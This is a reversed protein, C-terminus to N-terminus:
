IRPTIDPDHEHQHSPAESTSALLNFRNSTPPINAQPPASTNSPKQRSKRTKARIWPNDSKQAHRENDRATGYKNLRAPCRRADAPHNHDINSNGLCNRCRTDHPCHGEATTDMTDGMERALNCRPCNTPDAYPHDKEDHLGSCIRCRQDEKCLHSPHDLKWCNRCQTVPPRDQFARVSCHKGFAALSKHKLILRAATEDTTTFVLSSRHTNLLEEETRLWRPKSVLTDQLRTYQPNCALPEAHITDASNSVRGNAISLSSTNVADIQIKFWKKDERLSIARTNDIRTLIPTLQDKFKLLESATQDSRTSLILNGQNNFNAAVVKMHKSTPNASLTANIEAVINSPDPRANEPIGNPLFQAVMRSPHHSTNPNLPTKTEQSTTPPPQKTTPTIQPPTNTHLKAQRYISALTTLPAAHISGNLTNDAPRPARTPEAKDLKRNMETLLKHIDSIGAAIPRIQSSSTYSPLLPALKTLIDVVEDDELIPELCQDEKALTFEKLLNELLNIVTNTREQQRDAGSWDAIVTPQSFLASEDVPGLMVQDTTYPPNIPLNLPEIQTPSRQGHIQNPQKVPTGTNHRRKGLMQSPTPSGPTRSTYSLTPSEHQLHIQNDITNNEPPLTRTRKQTPTKDPAKPPKTYPKYHSHFNSNEVNSAM